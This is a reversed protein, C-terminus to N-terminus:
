LVFLLAPFSRDSVDNPRILVWQDILYLRLDSTTSETDHSTFEFTCRILLDPRGDLSKADIKTGARTAPFANDL